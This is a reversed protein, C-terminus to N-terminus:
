PRNSEFGWGSERIGPNANVAFQKAFLMLYSLPRSGNNGVYPGRCMGKREIGKAILIWIKPKKALWM